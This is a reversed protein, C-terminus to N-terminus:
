AQAPEQDMLNELLSSRPRVEAEEFVFAALKRVGDPDEVYNKKEPSYKNAWGLRLLVDTKDALRYGFMHEAAETPIMVQQGPPFIFEEGDYRDEHTFDNRNTVFVQNLPM